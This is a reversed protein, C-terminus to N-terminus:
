YKWIDVDKGQKRLHDARASIYRQFSPESVYAQELVYAMISQTHFTRMASDMKMVQEGQKDFYVISPFYSLGLRTAWDRITVQEGGLTHVRQESLANLQIVNMQRFIVDTEKDALTKNHLVDCAECNPTEFLIALPRDMPLDLGKALVDAQQFYPQTNGLENVEQNSTLALKAAKYEAFSQENEFKGKVYNLAMDFEEPPYYGNLRLAPKKKESYFILTPTFDVDLAQALQKESFGRGGVSVVEEDGWMNIAVVDFNDKFNNEIQPVAMNHEWLQNCYPCGQQWFYLALRKGEATADDIDEAFDLFGHKFWEPHTVTKAGFFRGETQKEEADVTNSTLLLSLSLLTTCLCFRMAQTKTHILKMLVITFLNLMRNVM